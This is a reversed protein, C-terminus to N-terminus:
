QNESHRSPLPFCQDAGQVTAVLISGEFQAHARSPISGTVEVVSGCWEPWVMRLELGYLFLGRTLNPGHAM